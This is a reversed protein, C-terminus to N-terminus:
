LGNKVELFMIDYGNECYTALGQSVLYDFAEEGANMFDHEYSDKTHPVYQKIIKILVYNADALTKKTAILEDSIKKDDM